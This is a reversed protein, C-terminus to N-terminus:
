MAASCFGTLKPEPSIAAMRSSGSLGPGSSGEAVGWSVGVCCLFPAPLGVSRVRWDQRAAGPTGPRPPNTCRPLERSGGPELWLNEKRFPARSPAAGRSSLTVLWCSPAQFFIDAM